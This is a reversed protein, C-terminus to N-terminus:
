ALSKDRMEWAHDLVHWAMRRIAYRVPWGKETLLSGDRVNPIAAFVAEHHVRVADADFPSFPPRRVGIKRAYNRDANVVHDIIGDRDRGGGRPGKRMEPTVTAAVEDFYRWSAQLLSLQRECEEHSMPEFEAAHVIDPAGFSTTSNGPQHDIVDVTDSLDDALGALRIVPRYREAYALLAEIAAAESKGSRSWGPWDLASAFSTNQVTEIVVRSETM